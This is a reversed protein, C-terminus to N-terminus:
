KFHMMITSQNISQHPKLVCTSGTWFLIVYNFAAHDVFESLRAHATHLACRGASGTFTDADPAKFFLILRLYWLRRTGVVNSEILPAPASLIADARAATTMAVHASAGSAVIIPVPRLGGMAPGTHEMVENPATPSLAVSLVADMCAAMSWQAAACGVPEVTRTGAPAYRM